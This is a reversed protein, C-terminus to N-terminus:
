MLRVLSQVDLGNGDVDGFDSDCRVIVQRHCSAIRGTFDSSGYTSGNLTAALDSKAKASIGVSRDRRDM